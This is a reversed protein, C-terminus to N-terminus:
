LIQYLSVMKIFIISMDLCSTEIINIIPDFMDYMFIKVKDMVERNIFFEPNM